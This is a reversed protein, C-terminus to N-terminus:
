AWPSRNLVRALFTTIVHANAADAIGCPPRPKQRAGANGRTQQKRDQGRSCERGIAGVGDIFRDRVEEPRELVVEGRESGISAVHRHGLVHGALRGADRDDIEVIARGLGVGDIAARIAGVRGARMPM